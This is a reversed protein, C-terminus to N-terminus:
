EMGFEIRYGLQIVYATLPNNRNYEKDFIFDISIASQKNVNYRYGITTRLNHLVFPNSTEIRFSTEVGTYVFFDTQPITYGIRVKERHVLEMFQSQSFSEMDNILRFRTNIKFADLKTKWLVDAFFRNSFQSYESFPYEMKARYGLGFSLNQNLVYICAADAQYRGFLSTNNFFRVENELGFKLHDNVKLEGELTLWTQLDTNQGSSPLIQFILLLCFISLCTTKMLKM